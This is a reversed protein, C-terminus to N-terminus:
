NNNHPHVQFYIIYSKYVLTSPYPFFFSLNLQAVKSLGSIGADTSKIVLENAVKETTGFGEDTYKGKDTIVVEM